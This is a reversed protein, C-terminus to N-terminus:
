RRQPGALWFRLRSERLAALGLLAAVGIAVFVDAHGWVIAALHVAAAFIVLVAGIPHLYFQHRKAVRIWRVRPWFRALLDIGQLVGIFWVALAIGLWLPWYDRWVLLFVAGAGLVFGAAPQLVEDGFVSCANYEEAIIGDLVCLVGGVILVWVAKELKGALGYYLMLGGCAIAATTLVNPFTLYRNTSMSKM